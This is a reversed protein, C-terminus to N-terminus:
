RRACSRSTRATSQSVPRLLGDAQAGSLRAAARGAPRRGHQGHRRHPRPQAIKINCILYGVQGAQLSSAPAASRPSSAWSWCRTRTAPRSSASRRARAHGHREDPARLHDRRPVRRLALRLGDGAAPADPDGPPPPVREIIAALLEDIGQGTKGSARCCTPRRRHGPSDGDRAHSRRAPREDPRDQQAGARHDPRQEMAAFANAVTQAEVGQFADVLLM